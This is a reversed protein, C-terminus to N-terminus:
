LKLLWNKPNEKQTDKWIQFKLVTKGTIKDSYIRGLPQELLVKDGKRVKITELNNYLSIYNGHQIYVTKVGNSSVQIALVKGEFIARADANKNTAIHIGNSQITIGKLTKHPIKGFNRIVLANTVPWPLKGKNQTFKSALAKAEPTLAFGKAKSKNKRKSAAIAEKIIKEIQQQIKEEEKQKKQIDAIYEKEQSKVTVVLAEQEKKEVEILIQAEKQTALLNEKKIKQVTLTSNLTRIKSAQVAIKEGQKQRYDTYQNMYKLRKFAQNFNKSSLLFMLRSQISKSKYSKYIMASYDKKLATLESELVYIQKKNKYIRNTLVRTESKVVNILESRVRIKRNLDEIQQLLSKQEKKTAFLLTNIKKIEKQLKTRKAELKKQNSTQAYTFSPSSSLLIFLLFVFNLTKKKTHELLPSKDEKKM